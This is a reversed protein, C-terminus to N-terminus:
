AVATVNTGAIKWATGNYTVLGGTGSGAGEQVGAGNFVRCNSCWAMMGTSGAPLTAVTYSTLVPATLTKSSLTQVQDTSVFVHNTAGDGYNVTGANFGLTGGTNPNTGNAITPNGVSGSYTVLGGSANTANGLATLVGTGAGTLGTSIPLGTLNTATGSAPTGLAGGVFYAAGTGVEDTLAARLNASSPTALFTAIGTGLGSVGTSIPLGTANTLTISAPTGMALGSPLTTSISPVGAGSTVLVGSNATALSSWVGVSSFWSLTNVAGITGLSLGTRQLLGNTAASFLALQGGGNNVADLSAQVNLANSTNGSDDQVYNTGVFTQYLNPTGNFINAIAGARLWLLKVTSPTPAQAGWITNFV